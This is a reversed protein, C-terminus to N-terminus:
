MIIVHSGMEGGVDRCLPLSPGRSICNRETKGSVEGSVLSCGIMELYSGCYYIVWIGYLRFSERTFVKAFEIFCLMKRIFSERKVSAWM